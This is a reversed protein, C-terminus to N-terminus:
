REIVEIKVRERCSARGIQYHLPFLEALHLARAVLLDSHERSTKDDGSKEVDGVAVCDRSDACVAVYSRVDGVMQKNACLLSHLRAFRFAPARVMPLYRCCIASACNSCARWFYVPVALHFQHHVM